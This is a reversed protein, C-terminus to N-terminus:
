SDYDVLAQNNYNGGACTNYIRTKKQTMGGLIQYIPVGAAQGCLDWLAIDVASNGRMEVSRTPFGQNHNGMHRAMGQFLAERNRPDKGILYPACTEHLYTEIAGVNRYTEGLGVLGADTKLRVLLLNSFGGVRITELRTIKMNPRESAGQM